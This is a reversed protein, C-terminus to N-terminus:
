ETRRPLSIRESQEEDLAESLEKWPEPIPDAYTKAKDIQLEIVAAM